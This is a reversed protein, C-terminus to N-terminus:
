CAPARSIRKTIEYCNLDPVGIDFFVIQSRSTQAPDFEQVNCFGATEVEHGELQLLMRFSEAADSYGEVVLICIKPKAIAIADKSILNETNSDILM